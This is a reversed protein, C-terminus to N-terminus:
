TRIRSGWNKKVLPQRHGDGHRRLRRKGIDQLLKPSNWGPPNAAIGRKPRGGFFIYDHNTGALATEELEDMAYQHFLNHTLPLGYQSDLQRTKQSVKDM